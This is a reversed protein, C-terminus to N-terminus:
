KHIICNIWQENQRDPRKDQSLWLKNIKFSKIQSIINKLEDETLDSFYRNNREGEFTGLKFSCYFIGHPKLAKSIKKFVEPLQKKPLHLLSACAWVADFENHFDIATIDALLASDGLYRRVISIMEESNDMSLVDFGQNKFFLSDRGTGCGLDLIKGGPKILPCFENYFESMDIHFTDTFFKLSNQNYYQKTKDIIHTM